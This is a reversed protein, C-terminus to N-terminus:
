GNNVEKTLFKIINKSVANSYLFEKEYTRVIFGDENTRTKVGQRESDFIRAIKYGLKCRDDNSLNVKNQELFMKLTVM